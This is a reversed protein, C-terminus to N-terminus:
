MCFVRVSPSWEYYIKAGSTVYGLVLAICIAYGLILSGCIAYDLVLAEYIAYGLVLDGCM